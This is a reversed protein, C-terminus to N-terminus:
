QGAEPAEAIIRQVAPDFIYNAICVYILALSWSLIYNGAILLFGLNFSGAVKLALVQKAFGALITLGVYGLLYVATMPVLFRLKARVLTAMSSNRADTNATADRRHVAADVSSAMM